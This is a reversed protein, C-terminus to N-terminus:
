FNDISQSKYQYTRRSSLLFKWFTIYNPNIQQLNSRYFKILNITMSIHTLVNFTFDDFLLLDVSSFPETHGVDAIGNAFPCDVIILFYKPSSRLLSPNITNINDGNNFVVVSFWFNNHYNFKPRGNFSVSQLKGCSHCFTLIILLIRFSLQLFLSSVNDLIENFDWHRDNIIVWPFAILCRQNINCVDISLILCAFSLM